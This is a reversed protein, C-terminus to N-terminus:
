CPMLIYCVARQHKLMTGWMATTELRPYLKNSSVRLVVRVMINLVISTREVMCRCWKALSYLLCHLITETKFPVQTQYGGGGKKQGM